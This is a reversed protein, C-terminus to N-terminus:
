IIVEISKRIKIISAAGLPGWNVNVFFVIYVTPLNYSLPFVKLIPKYFLEKLTKTKKM